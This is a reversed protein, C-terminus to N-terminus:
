TDTDSPRNQNHAAHLWARLEERVVIWSGGPLPVGPIDGAKLWRRVTQESVGLSGGVQRPTMRPPQDDLLDDLHSMDVSQWDIVSIM